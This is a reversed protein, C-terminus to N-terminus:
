RTQRRASVPRKHRTGWLGADLPSVIDKEYVLTHALKGTVIKREPSRFFHGEVFPRGWKAVVVTEHTTAVDNFDQLTHAVFKTVHGIKLRESDSSDWRQTKIKM